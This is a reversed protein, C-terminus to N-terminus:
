RLVVYAAFEPEHPTWEVDHVKCVPSAGEVDLRVSDGIRPVVPMAVDKTFGSMGPKRFRIIMMWMGEETKDTM